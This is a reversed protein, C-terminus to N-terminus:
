PGGWHLTYMSRHASNDSSTEGTGGGSSDPALPSSPDTSNDDAGGDGSEGKSAKARPATPRAKALELVRTKPELVVAQNWAYPKHMVELAFPGYPEVTGRASRITRSRYDRQQGLFGFSDLEGPDGFCIRYFRTLLAMDDCLSGDLNDGYRVWNDVNLILTKAEQPLYALMGLKVLTERISCIGEKARQERMWLSAKDEKQDPHVNPHMSDILCSVMDPRFGAGHRYLRAPQIIRLTFGFLSFVLIQIRILCLTVHYAAVQCEERKSYLLGGAHGLNWTGPSEGVFVASCKENGLPSVCMHMAYVRPVFAHRQLRTHMDLIREFDAPCFSYSMRAMLGQTEESRTVCGLGLTKRVPIRILGKQHYDASIRPMADALIKVQRFPENWDSPPRSLDVPLYEVPSRRCDLSTVRSGDLIYKTADASATSLFACKHSQSEVGNSWNVLKSSAQSHIPQNFDGRHPVIGDVRRWTPTLNDDLGYCCNIIPDKPNVTDTKQLTIFDKRGFLNQISCSSTITPTHYAERSLKSVIDDAVGHVFWSQPQLSLARRMDEVTHSRPRKAVQGSPQNAPERAEGVPGAAEGSRTCESGAGTESHVRKQTEPAERQPAEDEDEPLAQLDVRGHQQGLGGVSCGYGYLDAHASHFSVVGGRLSEGERPGGQATGEKDTRRVCARQALSQSSGTSQQSGRTCLPRDPVQRPVHWQHGEGASGGRAGHEPGGTSNRALGQLPASFSLQDQTQALAPAPRRTQQSRQPSRPPSAKTLSLKTIAAHQGHNDNRSCPSAPGPAGKSAILREVNGSGERIPRNRQLIIREKKTEQQGDM